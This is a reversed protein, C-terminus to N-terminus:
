KPTNKSRDYTARKSRLILDNGDSRGLGVWRVWGGLWGRGEGELPTGSGGGKGQGSGGGPKGCRGRWGGGPKRCKGRWGAEGKVSLFRREGGCNYLKDRFSQNRFFNGYNQPTSTFSLINAFDASRNM